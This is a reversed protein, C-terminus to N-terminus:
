RGLEGSKGQVVRKRDAGEGAQVFFSCLMTAMVALALPWGSGIQSMLGYGLVLGALLLALSRKRGFRDSLWGGGPRAVLNMFAFCIPLACTQVGTVHFDR